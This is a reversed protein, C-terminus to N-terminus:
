KLLNIEKNKIEYTRDFFKTLNKKHTTIILTTNELNTLNQILMMKM